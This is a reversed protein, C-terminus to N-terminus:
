RLNCYKVHALQGLETSYPTQYARQWVYSTSMAESTGSNVTSAKHKTMYSRLLETLLDSTHKTTHSRLLETLLDISYQATYSWLFLLLKFFVSRKFTLRDVYNRLSFTFTRNNALWVSYIVWKRNWYPNEPWCTIEASLSMWMNGALARAYSKEIM